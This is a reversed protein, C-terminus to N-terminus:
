LCCLALALALRSEAPTQPIVERLSVPVPQLVHAHTRTHEGAGRRSVSLIASTVPIVHVRSPIVGLHSELVSEPEPCEQPLVVAIVLATMWGADTRGDAEMNVKSEPVHQALKINSRCSWFSEERENELVVSDVDEQPLLPVVGSQGVALVGVVRQVQVRGHQVGNRSRVQAEDVFLPGVEVLDGGVVLQQANGFVAVHEVAYPLGLMRTQM